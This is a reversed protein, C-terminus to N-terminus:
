EWLYKYFKAMNQMEMCFQEHSLGIGKYSGVIFGSIASFWQNPTIHPNQNTLEIILNRAEVARDNDDDRIIRKV